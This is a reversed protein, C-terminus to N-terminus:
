IQVQSRVTEVVQLFNENHEKGKELKFQVFVESEQTFLSVQFQFLANTTNSKDDTTMFQGSLEM